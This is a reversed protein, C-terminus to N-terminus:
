ISLTFSRKAFVMSHSIQCSAWRPMKFAFCNNCARFASTELSLGEDSSYHTTHTILRTGLIEGKAELSTHYIDCAGFVVLYCQLLSRITRNTIAASHPRLKMTPNVIRGIYLPGCNLLIQPKPIRFGSCPIRLGNYSIWFGCIEISDLIWQTNSKLKVYLFQSLM